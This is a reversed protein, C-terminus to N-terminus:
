TVSEEARDTVSEEARDTVAREVAALRRALNARTPAGDGSGVAGDGPVDSQEGRAEGDGAAERTDEGTM